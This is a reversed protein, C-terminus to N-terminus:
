GDSEREGEIDMDNPTFYFYINCFSPICKLIINYICATMTHMMLIM